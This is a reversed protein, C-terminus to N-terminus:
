FDKKNEIFDVIKEIEQKSFISKIDIEQFNYNVDIKNLYEDLCKEKNEINNKEYECLQCNYIFNFKEKLYKQRKGYEMVNDLYKLFLKNNSNIECKSSKILIDGFGFYFCNPVSFHNFFLPYYWLGNGIGM